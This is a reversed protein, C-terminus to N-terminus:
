SQFLFTPNNGSFIIEEQPSIKVHNIAINLNEMLKDVLINTPEVISINPYKQKFVYEIHEKVHSFHTCGLVLTDIEGSRNVIRKIEEIIEKKENNEIHGILKQEGSEIVKVKHNISYILSKYAHANATFNSSIVLVKEKSIEAAKTASLNLIPVVFPNTKYPTISNYVISATNCAIGIISCGEFHLDTINKSVISKLESESKTGYPFNKTDGFYKVRAYNEFGKFQLTQKLKNYVPIGGIGSDFIGIKVKQM